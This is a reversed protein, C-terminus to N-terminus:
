YDDGTSLVSRAEDENREIASQDMEKEYQAKKALLLAPQRDDKIFGDIVAEIPILEHYHEPADPIDTDEVMSSVRYSYYLRLTKATDPTPYLVLRNRKIYYATPTGTRGRGGDVQNPTVPLIQSVHENPWTGSTVIELRHLKWFDDPLVYEAQNVVTTTEVPKMYYNQGAKLLRKQVTFLANNLWTEVQSETFYGFSLDDLWGATLTKLQSFNM